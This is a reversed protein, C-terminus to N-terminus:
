PDISLWQDMGSPCPATKYPAKNNGKLTRQVFYGPKNEVCAIFNQGKNEKRKATQVGRGAGTGKQIVGVCTYLLGPDELRWNGQLRLSINGTM